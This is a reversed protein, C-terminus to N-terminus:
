TRGKLPEKRFFPHTDVIKKLEESTCYNLCTQLEEFIIECGEPAMGIYTHIYIDAQKGDVRGAREHDLHEKM